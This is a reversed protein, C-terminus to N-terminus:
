YTKLSLELRNLSCIDFSNEVPHRTLDHGFQSYLYKSPAFSWGNLHVREVLADRIVEIRRADRDHQEVAVITGNGPRLLYSTMPM